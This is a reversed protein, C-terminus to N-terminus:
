KEKSENNLDNDKTQANEDASKKTPEGDDFLKYGSWGIYVCYGVGILKIVTILKQGIFIRLVPITISAIIIVYVLLVILNVFKVLLEESM